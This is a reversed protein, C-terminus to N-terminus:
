LSPAPIRAMSRRHPIIGIPPIGALAAIQDAWAGAANVLQAGSYVGGETEVRWGNATRTIQSVRAQTVITGGNARIAKAFDQLMRDTDIDYAGEHHGALDVKRLDLVPVMDRAEQPTIPTVGLAAVDREFAARDARGAVIMLGRRSLYGGNHARHYEASAKNLGVTCASGYNEEFLAASRGSAHYGLASEGELLTVKGLQSLRAGASLGAIGGGIVIFDSM